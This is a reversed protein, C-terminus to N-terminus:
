CLLIASWVSSVEDVHRKGPVWSQQLDSVGDVSDDNGVESIEDEGREGIGSESTASSSGREGAYGSSSPSSPADAEHESNERWVVGHDFSESVEEVVAESVAALNNQVVEQIEESFSGNSVGAEPEQDSSSDADGNPETLAISALHDQISDLPKATPTPNPNQDTSGCNSVSPSSDSSM